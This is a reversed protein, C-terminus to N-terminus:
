IVHQITVWNILIIKRVINLIILKQYYNLEKCGPERRLSYKLIEEDM